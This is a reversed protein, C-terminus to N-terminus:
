SASEAVDAAEEKTKEEDKVKCVLNCYSVIRGALRM